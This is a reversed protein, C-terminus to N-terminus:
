CNDFKADGRVALIKTWLGNIDDSSFEEDNNLYSSIKAGDIDVKILSYRICDVGLTNVYPVKALTILGSHELLALMIIIGADDVNQRALGLLQGLKAKTFDIPKGRELVSMRALIAFTTILLSPDIYKNFALLFRLVTVSMPVYLRTTHILYAGEHWPSLEIAGVEILKKYATAITQPSRIGTARMIQANTYSNRYIYYHNEKNFSNWKSHALLWYYLAWQSKSLPWPKDFQTADQAPVNRKEM